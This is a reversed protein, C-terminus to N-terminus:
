AALVTVTDSLPSYGVLNRAEAYFTYTVGADLGTVTVYDDTVTDSFVVFDTSPYVAYSVRYDIVPSGGDFAGPTWQLGIQYATTIAANNEIV